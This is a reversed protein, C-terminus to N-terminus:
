RFAEVRELKEVILTEDLEDERRNRILATQWALLVRPVNPEVIVTCLQGDHDVRQNGFRTRFSFHLRPITFTLAGTPSMNFVQVREGGGLYTPPLQDHPACNNYRPDFDVAWSPFRSEVWKADYTGAMQRRPSWSYDIAGFGAPAPRDTWAQILQHPYEVNPLAMGICTKERLSFGTGVPNRDDLRHDAPDSAARDWGGYAREYVVPMREFPKPATASLGGFASELWQRDGTVRLRKNISGVRLAVDLATVRQGPPAMADGVVLIDTTPKVGLLDSDYRLSSFGFEGYAKAMQRVPDNEGGLRCTGDPLIDFTAKVVVLWTKNGDKDVVWAHDAAFPTQNAVLWM